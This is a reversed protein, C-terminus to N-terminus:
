DFPQRALTNLSAVVYLRMFYYSRSRWSVKASISCGLESDGQGFKRAHTEGGGSEVAGVCECVITVGHQAKVIKFYEADLHKTDYVISSQSAGM